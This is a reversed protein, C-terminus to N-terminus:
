FRQREKSIDYVIRGNVLILTAYNRLDLPNGTWVVLDADKGEEISGVRDDVKLVRASNITIGELALKEDIGLRSAMAAQIVLKEQESFVSDTNISINKVGRKAYETVIGLFSNDEIDYLRPGCDYLLRGENVRKAVEPANRYAGFEGHTIVVSDLGMEDNHMHFVSHTPQFWATHVFAPMTDFFVEKMNEFRLSKEPKEKTEGSNYANWEEAYAKCDNMITRLHWNMGMRGAGIEGYSEREPNGAQAIKLVGPFKLIIDDVSEGATKMVIGIGGVNSGSGPIHLITTVGAALGRQLAPTNIAACDLTRCEPNLSYIMENFGDTREGGNHSHADVFGPLLWRDSAEIIKYGPPIPINKGIKQIKGNRVLVIGDQIIGQTITIIKGAKIAYAPKRSMQGQLLIAGTLFIILLTLSPRIYRM